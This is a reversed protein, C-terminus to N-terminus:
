HHVNIDTKLYKRANELGEFHVKTKASDLLTVRAVCKAAGRRRTSACYVVNHPMSLIAEKAAAETLGFFRALNMIDYPHRLHSPVRARSSVIINASRSCQHLIHSLTITRQRSGSDAICPGYNLQELM